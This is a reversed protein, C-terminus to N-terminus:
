NGKDVLENLQDRIVTLQKRQKILYWKRLELYALRMREVSEEDQPKALKNIIQMSLTTIASFDDIPMIEHVPEVPQQHMIKALERVAKNLGDIHESIERLNELEDTGFLEFTKKVIKEMTDLGFEIAAVTSNSRNEEFHLITEITRQTTKEIDNSIAQLKNHLEKDINYKEIKARLQYYIDSIEKLLKREDTDCWIGYEKIPIEVNYINIESELSYSYHQVIQAAILNIILQSIVDDYCDPITVYLNVEVVPNEWWDEEEWNKNLVKFEYNVIQM